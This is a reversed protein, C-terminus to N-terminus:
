KKVSFTIEPFQRLPMDFKFRLKVFCRLCVFTDILSNHLNEPTTGFLHEHLELLKPSKYYKEGKDNIRELKCIYKSSYMTCYNIKNNEKEFERNFVNHWEQKLHLKNREIEIKIMERDFNINHAVIVDSNMYDFAFEHLAVDINIGRDCMKRTIGTLETIKESIEVSKDVNIYTDMCKVVQWGKTEFIVYSLQLIYPLDNIHVDERERPILGSTEVDFVLVREVKKSM